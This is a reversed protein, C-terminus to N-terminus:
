GSRMLELVVAQERIQIQGLQVLDEAVAPAPRGILRGPDPETAFIVEARGMLRQRLRDGVEDLLAGSVAGTSRDSQQRLQPVGSEAEIRETNVEAEIRGTAVHFRDHRVDAVGGPQLPM